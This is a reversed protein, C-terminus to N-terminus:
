TAGHIASLWTTSPTSMGARSGATFASGSTSTLGTKTNAISQASRSEVTALYVIAAAMGSPKAITLNHFVEQIGPSSISQAGTGNMRLTGNLEDLATLSGSNNAYNGSLFITGGM